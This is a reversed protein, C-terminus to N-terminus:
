GGGRWRVQAALLVGDAAPKDGTILLVADGVVLDTNTVLMEKGDRIVQSFSPPRPDTPARARRFLFSFFFKGAGGGERAKIEM